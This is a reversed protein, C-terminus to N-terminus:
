DNYEGDEGSSLLILHKLTPRPLNCRATKLEMVERVNIYYKKNVNVM